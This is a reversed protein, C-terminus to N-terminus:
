PHQGYGLWTRHVLPRPFVSHRITLCPGNLLEARLQEENYDGSLFVKRDRDFREVLDGVAKPAGM